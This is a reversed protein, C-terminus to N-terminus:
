TLLFLHRVAMKDLVIKPVLNANNNDRKLCVALFPKESKYYNLLQYLNTFRCIYHSYNNEIRLHAMIRDDDSELHVIQHM